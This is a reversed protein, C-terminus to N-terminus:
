PNHWCSRDPARRFDVGDQIDGVTAVNNADQSFWGMDAHIKGIVKVTPKESDAAKKKKEADSSKKAAKELTAVRVDLTTKENKADTGDKDQVYFDPNMEGFGIGVPPLAETQSPKRSTMQARLVRVEATLEQLQQQQQAAIPNGYPTQGRAIGLLLAPLVLASTLVFRIRCGSITMAPM